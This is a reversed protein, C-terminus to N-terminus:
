PHSIKKGVELDFKVVINGVIGDLPAYLENFNPNNIPGRVIKEFKTQRIDLINEVNLAFTFHGITKQASAGLLWYNPTKSGDELHQRGFYFAELGAKWGEEEDEYALTSTLKNQPTLELQNNNDYTKLANLHTYDVYLILEDLSLRINTNLGKSLLTGAANKYLITQNQLLNDDSIIPDTIRTVFFAQNITLFLEDSLPTKFNFDLNLGKSKEVKLNTPMIVNQYRTREAEDSFSTPLKYGIGGSLRSFFKNSLHYMVALRPLFFSGRQFNYDFRIGPELLLKTGIQWDDQSFVGFTQYSYSIAFTGPQKQRFDDENFNLGSVWKHKGSKIFYFLESFVTNQIGSFLNVNTKLTRDFRGVSTKLTFINGSSSSNEFKLNGNLRNTKNEEFFSNIIDSENHIAKINGGIRNEIVDSFGVYLHNNKNFDYFIKPSIVGRDYQPIDTFGNGSIDKANQTNFSALMTLGFKKYPASFYSSIDRGDRHTQNLLVSLEQKDKPKKTILNVIGAIADSGYLTSASGKIIEVQQLDLPPIQLLSLGSSFGGFLPFGDQLLQTYEGPLGQIRFSVNGSIASTHQIEIGSTEGLLKSINGPNIATEEVVEEKGLVEIRTPIEEIRNNTRTSYITIADLTIEQELFITTTTKANIPFDFVREVTRYGVYSFVFTQKGNPINQITIKGLLDASEGISTGKLVCNAGILPENSEKDKVMVNLANQGQGFSVFNILLLFIILTKKKMECNKVITHLPCFSACGFASFPPKLTVKMRKM